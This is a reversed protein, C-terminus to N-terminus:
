ADMPRPVRCVDRWRAHNGESYWSARQHSVGPSLKARNERGFKWGTEPLFLPALKIAVPTDLDIDVIGNSAEGLVVGINSDPQFESENNEEFTRKQWEDLIPKKSQPLLPIVALRHEDFFSIDKM